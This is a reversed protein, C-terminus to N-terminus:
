CRLQPAPNKALSDCSDSRITRRRRLRSEGRPHITTGNTGSELSEYSFRIDRAEGGGQEQRTQAESTRAPSRVQECQPAGRGARASNEPSPYSHRVAAVQIPEGSM